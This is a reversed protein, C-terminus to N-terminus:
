GDLTFSRLTLERDFRRGDALVVGAQSALTAFDYVILKVVYDDAPLGALDLRSIDLPDDAIVADVQAAKNGAGDFVQLTYSYQKDISRRWWLYVHLAEDRQEFLINGLRAGNDYVLEVPQAATVLECPIERKLYFGIVANPKDVWNGCSRYHQSLWDQFYDLTLLDTQRPNHLLWLGNANAVIASQTRFPLTKSQVILRNQADYGAHALDAWQPLRARYYTLIEYDNVLADQHLSLIPLQAGPLSDAEYLFEQYHPVDDHNIARRNTYVLFDESYFYAFSAATWVALLPYRLWRWAPLRTLGIALCCCFPVALVITYRLRRAVLITTAENMAFLLLLAVGTLFVLYTEAGARKRRWLLGGIALLPLLWLGNAYVSFIAELSDLLSLRSADLADQSREFGRLAVPLWAVFLLCACSVLLSVRLWRRNKPAFLLHYCGLAAIIIFGFYNAYVISATAAFLSLWRRGQVPAGTSVVRWYSWLLWCVMLLLLAYFRTVHAYYNFYALGAIAIVAACVVERDRTLSALRYVAAVVLIAFFVSLLRSSFLDYGTLRQWINLVVFYLPGHEVSHEAVSAITEPITYTYEAWRTITHKLTETEDFYVPASKLSGIGFIYVLFVCAIAISQPLAPHKNLNFALLM